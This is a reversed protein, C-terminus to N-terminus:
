ATLRNHMASATNKAKAKLLGTAGAAQTIEGGTKLDNKTYEASAAGSGWLFDGSM